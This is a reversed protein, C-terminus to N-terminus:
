CSTICLHVLFNNEDCGACGMQTNFDGFVLSTEHSNPKKTHMSLETYFNHRVEFDFKDHPAYVSLLNLIGGVVKVRLSAIRDSVAKFSIISKIAGLRSWSVWVLMRDRDRM